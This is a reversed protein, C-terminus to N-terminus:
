NRLYQRLEFLFPRLDDWRNVEYRTNKAFLNLVRILIRWKSSATLYLGSRDKFVLYLHDLDGLLWRNKIGTKYGN